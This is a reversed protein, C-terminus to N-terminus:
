IVTDKIFRFAGLVDTSTSTFGELKIFGGINAKLMKFEDPDMRCGRYCTFNNKRFEYNKQKSYLELISYFLDQFPLRM